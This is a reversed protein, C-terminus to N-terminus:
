LSENKEGLKRITKTQKKVAKVDTLPYLQIALQYVHERKGTKLLAIMKQRFERIITKAEPLKELDCAVMLSSFDRLELDIDTLKEKGLDLTELHSARLADSAVDETTRFSSHTRIYKGNEDESIMGFKLLNEIVVEARIKTICLKEVLSERSLEFDECDFLMLAAYHEWEAIIQYYTEDLIVQQSQDRIEISDLTVHKKGLSEMFLTREKANLSIKGLVHSSNKFPLPRNGLLVQSLTSAPMGLDRAFARLSYSPNTRQRKSFNEKLKKLYYAQEM